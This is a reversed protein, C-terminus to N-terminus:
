LLSTHSAASRARSSPCIPARAAPIGGVSAQRTGKWLALGLVAGAAHAATPLIHWLQAQCSTAQGAGFTHPSLRAFPEPSLRWGGVRCLCGGKRCASAISAEGRDGCATAV